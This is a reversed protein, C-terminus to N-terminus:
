KFYVEKYEKRVTIKEPNQCKQLSDVMSNRYVRVYNQLSDAWIYMKMNTTEAIHVIQLLKEKTFGGKGEKDSSSKGEKSNRKCYEGWTIRDLDNEPKKLIPRLRM